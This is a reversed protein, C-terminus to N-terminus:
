KRFRRATKPATRFLFFADRWYFKPGGKKFPPPDLALGQHTQTFGLVRETIFSNSYIFNLLFHSLSNTEALALSLSKASAIVREPELTSVVSSRPASIRFTTTPRMAFISRWGSLSWMHTQRSSTPRSSGTWITVPAQFMWSPSMTGTARCM